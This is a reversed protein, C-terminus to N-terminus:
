HGTVICILNYPIKLIRYGLVFVGIIGGFIVNLFLIGMTYTLDSGATPVLFYCMKKVGFPFGAMLWFLISDKDKM